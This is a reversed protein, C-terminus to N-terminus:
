MNIMCNKNFATLYVPAKMWFLLNGTNGSLNLNNYQNEAHIQVNM